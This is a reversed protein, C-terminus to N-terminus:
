PEDPVVGGADDDEADEEAEGDSDPCGDRWRSPQAAWWSLTASISTRGVSCAHGHFRAAVDREGVREIETVEASVRGPVAAPNAPPAQKAAGAQLAQVGRRDRLWAVLRRQEDIGELEYKPEVFCVSGSPRGVAELQAVLEAYRLERALATASAARERASASKM